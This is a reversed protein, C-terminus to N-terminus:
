RDEWPIDQDTAEYESASEPAVPAPAPAPPAAVYPAQGTDSAVPASAHPLVAGLAMKQRNAEIRAAEPSRASPRIVKDAFIKAKAGDFIRQLESREAPSLESIHPTKPELVRVPRITERAVDLAATLHGPKPMRMAKAEVLRFAETLEQDSVRIGEFVEYWIKLEVEALPHEFAM